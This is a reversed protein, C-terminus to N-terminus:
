DPPTMVEPQSLADAAMNAALFAVPSVVTLGAFVLGLWWCQVEAFLSVGSLFADVVAGCAVLARSM